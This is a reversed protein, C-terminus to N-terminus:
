SEEIDTSPNRMLDKVRKQLDIEESKSDMESSDASKIQNLDYHTVQYGDDPNWFGSQKGGDGVWSWNKRINEYEGTKEKENRWRQFEQNKLEPHAIRDIERLEDRCEDPMPPFREPNGPPESPKEPLNYKESYSRADTSEKWDFM